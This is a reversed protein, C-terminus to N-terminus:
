SNLKQMMRTTTRKAEHKKWFLCRHVSSSMTNHAGITKRIEDERLTDRLKIGRISVDLQDRAAAFLLQLTDEDVTDRFEKHVINITDVLRQRQIKEDPVCDRLLSIDRKIGYVRQQAAHTEM